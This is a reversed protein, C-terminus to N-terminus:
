GVQSTDLPVSKSFSDSGTDDQLEAMPTPAVSQFLHRKRGLEWNLLAGGLEQPWDLRPGSLSM